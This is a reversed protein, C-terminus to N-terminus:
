ADVLHRQARVCCDIQAAGPREEGGHDPSRKVVDAQLISCGELVAALDGATYTVDVHKPKGTGETVNSRDHGLVFLTGGPRVATEASLLVSLFSEWPIHLYTIVVLDFSAEPPSWRTLDRRVWEIDAEPVEASARRRAIDLATTAFDVATVTWGARALHIANRGTGCAMELADGPPLSRTLEDVGPAPGEPWDASGDRYRQEWADSNM